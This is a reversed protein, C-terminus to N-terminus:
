PTRERRARGLHQHDVVAGGVLGTRDEVPQGGLVVLHLDNVLARVPAV